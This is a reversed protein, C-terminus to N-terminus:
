VTKNKSYINERTYWNYIQWLIHQLDLKTKQWFTFYFITPMHCKKCPMLSLSVGNYISCWLSLLCYNSVQSYLSQEHIINHHVRTCFTITINSWMPCASFNAQGPHILDMFHLGFTTPEIGVSALNIKWGAWHPHISLTVDCYCQSYLHKNEHM